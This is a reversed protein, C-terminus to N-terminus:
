GPIAENDLGPPVSVLSDGLIEITRKYIKSLSMSVHDTEQEHEQADVASSAYIDEESESEELEVANGGESSVEVAVVRTEEVLSKIRVKDTTSVQYTSRNSSAFEDQSSTLLYAFGEDLRKVLKFMSTSFPFAPMYSCFLGALTLLYPVQLTPTGSVWIISFVPDLDEVVEDFSEYGKSDDKDHESNSFKKGYRRSIRLLKDDLYNILATEKKSGPKLPTARPLPLNRGHPIGSTTSSATSGAPSLLGHSSAMKM